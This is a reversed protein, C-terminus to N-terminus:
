FQLPMYLDSQIEENPVSLVEAQELESQVPFVVQAEAGNKATNKQPPSFISSSKEKWSISQLFHKFINFKDSNSEKCTVIEGRLIGKRSIRKIVKRKIRVFEQQKESICNKADVRVSLNKRKANMLIIIIRGRAAMGWGQGLSVM